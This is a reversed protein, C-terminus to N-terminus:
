WPLIEAEGTGREVWSMCDKIMEKGNKDVDQACRFEGTESDTYDSECTACTRLAPNHPCTKEHKEMLKRSTTVRRGCRFECSYAVCKVAM